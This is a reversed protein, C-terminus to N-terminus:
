KTGKQQAVRILEAVLYDKEERVEPRIRQRFLGRGEAMDGDMAEAVNGAAVAADFKEQNYLVIDSVIIRALREAKDREAALGDQPAPAQPAPSPRPSSVPSAAVPAPAAAGPAAPSGSLPLGLRALIPALADPLDPREVYEDAGYPEGPARRYRDQDQISGILIVPIGQLSENRKMVECVQFGYMKPLAVDLIVLRPLLRQINMMAEVGDHVLVVQLGWRTLANATQKGMEAEADAVVVLRTRDVPAQAPPAVQASQAAPAPLVRFVTQCQSCRLRAGEATISAEDVRFKAQCTPCATIM